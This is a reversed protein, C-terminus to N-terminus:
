AAVGSGRLWVCLRVRAGLLGDFRGDVGARNKRLSVNNYVNRYMAHTVAHAVSNLPQIHRTDQTHTHTHRRPNVQSLEVRRVDYVSMMCLLYVFFVFM